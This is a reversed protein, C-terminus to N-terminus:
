FRFAQQKAQELVNGAARADRRAMTTPLIESMESLSAGASRADLLRLYSLWKEPHHKVNKIPKVCDSEDDYWHSTYCDELEKKAEALQPGLPLSLDFTMAVLNPADIAIIEGAEGFQYNEGQFGGFKVGSGWYPGDFQSGLVPDFFETMGYKQAANHFFPWSRIGCYRWADDLSIDDPLNDSNRLDLPERPGGIAVEFDRRYDDRRRTFEWRWSDTNWEDDVGYDEPERWDPIGWENVPASWSAM